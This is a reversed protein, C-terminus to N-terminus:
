QPHTYTHPTGLKKLQTHPHVFEGTGIKMGAMISTRAM